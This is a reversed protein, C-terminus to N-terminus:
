ADSTDGGAKVQIAQMVANRIQASIDSLGGPSHPIMITNTKSAASVDKLTDFYQTIVVLNMVDAAAADPVGGRFEEISKRLGEIIAARQGAIGQGQLIKSQSEAEAAKVKLIREAEGKEVAAVRLRQAANIENMAAKVTPDPEIDTVLSKLITYGFSEMVELLETKVADAIEDKKDFLNDLTMIPVRARVVDFVYSTIQSPVNDLRYFSDYINKEDPKIYYQVAVVVNVFVNDVTKTEVKVALQTVRLSRNGAIWDILPIKVHLGAHAIRVFKGFREIVVITQQDVTYFTLILLGIIAIAAASFFYWM